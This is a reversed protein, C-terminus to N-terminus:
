WLFGDRQWLWPRVAGASIGLGLGSDAQEETSVQLHAGVYQVRAEPSQEAQRAAQAMSPGVEHEM